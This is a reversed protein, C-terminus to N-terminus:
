KNEQMIKLIAEQQEPSLHKLAELAKEQPSKGKREKKTEKIKTEKLTKLKYELNKMKYDMNEYKQAAIRWKNQVKRYTIELENKKEFLKIVISRFAEMDRKIEAIKEKGSTIQHMKECAPCRCTDKDQDLYRIQYDKSCTTCTLLKM